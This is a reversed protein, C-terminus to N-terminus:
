SQGALLIVVCFAVLGLSVISAAILTAVARAARKWLPETWGFPRAHYRNM